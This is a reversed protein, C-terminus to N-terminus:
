KTVETVDIMDIEDLVPNADELDEAHLHDV